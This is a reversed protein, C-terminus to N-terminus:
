IRCPWIYKLFFIVHLLFHWSIYAIYAIKTLKNQKILASVFLLSAWLEFVYTSLPVNNCLTSFSSNIHGRTWWNALLWKVILHHSGAHATSCAHNIIGDLNEYRGKSRTSSPINKVLLDLQMQLDLIVYYSFIFTSNFQRKRGLFVCVHIM